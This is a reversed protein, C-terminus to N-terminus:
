DIVKRGDVAERIENMSMSGPDAGEPLLIIRCSYKDMLRDFLQVANPLADSDLMITLRKDVMRRIDDEILKSLSVGGIAIVPTGTAEWVAIADFVGEVLVAERIQPSWRPLVFPPKAGPQNLYKTHTEFAYARATWGIIRGHPGRFPIVIRNDDITEVMGTHIISGVQVGRDALYQRAPVTLKRWAPLDVEPWFHVPDASEQLLDLLEAQAQESWTDLEIVGGGGHDQAHCFWRGTDMNVYVNWGVSGCSPCEKYHREIDDGSESYDSTFDAITSPQVSVRVSNRRRVM